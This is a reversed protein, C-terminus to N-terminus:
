EKSIFSKLYENSLETEEVMGMHGSNELIHIHAEDPLHTQELMDKKPVAKDHEGIIFLVPM